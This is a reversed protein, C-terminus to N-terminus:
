LHRYNRTPKARSCIPEVGHHVDRRVRDDGIGEEEPLLKPETQDKFYIKDYRDFMSACLLPSPPIFCCGGLCIKSFSTLLFAIFGFITPGGQCNKRFGKVGRLIKAFVELVGGGQIKLGHADIPHNSVIL